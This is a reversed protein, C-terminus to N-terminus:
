DEVRYSIKTKGKKVKIKPIVVKKIDKLSTVHTGGCPIGDFGAVLMVRSPKDTPINSPINKCIKELEVRDVIRVSVALEQELLQAVKEEIM